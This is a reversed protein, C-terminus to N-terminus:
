DRNRIEELKAALEKVKGPNEQALNKTEGIDDSLDYLQPEPDNGLETNTPENIKPGDNPSIYKWQGQRISLTRAQEVLLDRGSTSAGLLAPLVDVSDPGADGVLEQGTLAAFSALFDVQSVLADSVGPKIRAPWRVIL